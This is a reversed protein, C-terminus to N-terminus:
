ILESLIHEPYSNVLGFRPDNIKEPTIGMQKCLATAKRGLAAAKNSSYSGLNHKTAYGVISYWYGHGNKFRELEHTNAETLMAISEVTETHESLQQEITALRLEHEKFTQAVLMFMDAPSQPQPQPQSLNRQTWEVFWRNVAIRFPISVWKAVDVAVEPHGWTSQEGYSNTFMILANSGDQSSIIINMDDSLAKLYAKSSKLKLWDAIKKSGVDCIKTLNMYGNEVRQPVVHGNWERQILESM